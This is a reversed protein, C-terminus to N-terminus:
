RKGPPPDFRKRLAVDLLAFADSLHRSDIRRLAILTCAGLADAGLPEAVRRLSRVSARAQTAHQLAAIAIAQAVGAECTEDDVDAGDGVGAGEAEGDCTGGEVGAGEAEGVRGSPKRPLM